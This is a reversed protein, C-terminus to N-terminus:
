KPLTQYASNIVNNRGGTRGKHRDCGSQTTDDPTGAVADRLAPRQRPRPATCASLNLWKYALVVDPTVGFGHCGPVNRPDPFCPLSKRRRGPAIQM